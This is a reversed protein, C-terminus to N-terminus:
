PRLPRRRKWGSRHFRWGLNRLLKWVHGTDYHVRFKAEILAAADRCTWPSTRRHDKCDPSALWENLRRRERDGLRSKRGVRLAKALGASGSKRYRQLWRNVTERTVRLRRAVEGQSLGQSLLAVAQLRLEELAALDRKRAVARRAGLLGPPPAPPTISIHSAADAVLGHRELAQRIQKRWSRATNRHIGLQFAADGLNGEHRLLAEWLRQLRVPLEHWAEAFAVRTEADFPNRVPPSLHRISSQAATEEGAERLPAMRQERRRKKIWTNARNFLAQALYAKWDHIDSSPGAKLQLTTKALEAELEDSETTDFRHAIREILEFEWPTVELSPERPPEDM